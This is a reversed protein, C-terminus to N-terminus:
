VELKKELLLSSLVFILGAYLLVTILGGTPSMFSFGEYDYTIGTFYFDPVWDMLPSIIEIFKFQLYIIIIYALITFFGQARKILKGILYCFQVLIFNQMGFLVYLIYVKIFIEISMYKEPLYTIGEKIMGGYFLVIIFISLMSWFIYGTMGALLKSGTQQWGSRPLLLSNYITDDRWERRFSQIGPWLMITPYFILPLFNLGFTVEVGWKGIMSVLFLQWGLSIVTVLLIFFSFLSLDKRYLERFAM